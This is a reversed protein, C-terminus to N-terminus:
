NFITLVVKGTVVIWFRGSLKERDRIKFSIQTSEDVQRAEFLGVQQACNVIKRRGDDYVYWQVCYPVPTKDGQFSLDLIEIEIKVNSKFNIDIVAENLEDTNHPYEESRFEVQSGNFIHEGESM